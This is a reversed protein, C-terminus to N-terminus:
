WFYHFPFIIDTLQFRLLLNKSYFHYQTFSNLFLQEKAKVYLVFDKVDNKFFSSTTYGFASISSESPTTHCFLNTTVESSFHKNESHSSSNTAYHAFGNSSHLGLVFTCLIAITLLYVIKAIKRM